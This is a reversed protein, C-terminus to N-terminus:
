TRTAKVGLKQATKIPDGTRASNQQQRAYEAALRDMDSPDIDPDFLMAQAALHSADDIVDLREQKDMQAAALSTAGAVLAAAISEPTQEQEVIQSQDRAELLKRGTIKPAM